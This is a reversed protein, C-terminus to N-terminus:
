IPLAYCPFRERHLLFEQFFLRRIYRRAWNYSPKPKHTLILPQTIITKISQRLFRNNDCQKNINCLQCGIYKTIYDYYIVINIMESFLMLIKSTEYTYIIFPPINSIFFLLIVVFACLFIGRSKLGRPSYTRM